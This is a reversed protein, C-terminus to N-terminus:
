HDTEPHSIIKIGPYQKRLSSIQSASFRKHVYCSGQWLYIQARNHSSLQIQDNKRSVSCIDNVSFGAKIATNYGLNFDPIFLIARNQDLYYRIIQLANSSTCVCGENYGAFSKMEAESNIYVIPIVPKELIKNIERSVTLATKLDITQALPCGASLEPLLITQQEPCIIRATDAMFKVGCFVIYRSKINQCERALQYSDGILDAHNTIASNQYHHACITILSGLDSRLSTISKSIKDTSKSSSM